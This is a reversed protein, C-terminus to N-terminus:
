LFGLRKLKPATAVTFTDLRASLEKLSESDDQLPTNDRIVRRGLRSLTKFAHEVPNKGNLIATLFLREIDNLNHGFGSVPSALFAVDEGYNYREILAANLRSTTKRRAEAGENPMGVSIIKSEILLTLVEALASASLVEAGNRTSLEAGTAPGQRLRDLLPRLLANKLKVSSIQTKDSAEDLKADDDILVFNMERLRDITAIIQGKEIGRGYLDYRFNRDLYLDKTTERESPAVQNLLAIIETPFCFREFNELPKCTGAFSLKARMLSEAVQHHYFLHWDLNFYEHAMYRISKKALDELTKRLSAHRNFFPGGIKAFAETFSLAEKIRTETNGASSRYKRMMIERLSQLESWGPLTNYSIMAVGGNQLRATLFDTIADRNDQNIWSWVGHLGVFDSQPIPLKLLDAFSSDFFTVNDLQAEKAIRKAWTIHNPNFDLAFIQAHPFVAAEILASLGYGCGLEVKVFPKKIDPGERGSAALSYSQLLPNLEKYYGHTYGLDTVYGDSWDM